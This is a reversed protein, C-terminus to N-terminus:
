SRKESFIQLRSGQVLAPRLGICGICSCQAGRRQPGRSMNNLHITWKKGSVGQTRSNMLFPKYIENNVFL